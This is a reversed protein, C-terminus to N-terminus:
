GQMVTCAFGMSSLIWTYPPDTGDIFSGLILRDIYIALNGDPTLVGAGHGPVPVLMMLAWFLILLGATTIMQWLLNLNLILIAAIFYGTAIAQLTNSLIHLQSLDYKLLNGQAIMGLVFLIVTRKIIHGYLRAKSDGRALRKEFSYPMAAGVIFLFLPMILDEFRFGEWRVHTLQTRIGATVPHDFIDHLSRFIREGGIIWFMDFGRLADISMVRSQPLARQESDPVSM